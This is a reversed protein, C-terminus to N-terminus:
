GFTMLSKHPSHDCSLSWQFANWIWELSWCDSRKMLNWCLFHQNNMSTLRKRLRHYHPQTPVKVLTRHVRLDSKLQFNLSIISVDRRERERKREKPEYQFPMPSDGLDHADGFNTSYKFPAFTECTVIPGSSVIIIKTVLSSSVLLIYLFSACNVKSSQDASVLM